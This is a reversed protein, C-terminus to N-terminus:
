AGTSIWGTRTPMSRLPWAIRWAPTSSRNGTWRSDRAACSCAGRPIGWSTRARISLPACWAGPPRPKTWKWSATCRPWSSTWAACYTMKTTSVAMTRIDSEIGKLVRFDTLCANVADIEAGQQAVREPSLGNAYAASQSHDCLLLYSYGREQTARAMEEVSNVGDSYTTHCHFVGRLDAQTVLAPTVTLEFEGRAERLEPPVFPLGLAAYIATEDACAVLDDDDRFLGYENLKLDRDKARQRMVVNHEKSGTFHMLAFPFQADEVVRLDCSLGNELQITSKTDGHGLIKKTGPYAIFHAMLAPADTASAVLDIDKIVEKRRRLSGGLDIRVLAPHGDLHALLSLAVNHGTSVLHQGSHARVFEIGELIKAAMKGSFGKVTALRGDQCVAALSDLSDM